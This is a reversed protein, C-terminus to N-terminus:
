IAWAAPKRRGVGAASRNLGLPFASGGRRPREERAFSPRGRGAPDPVGPPGRRRRAPAVQIGHVIYVKEAESLTVSAM